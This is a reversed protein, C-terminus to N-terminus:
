SRCHIQLSAHTKDLVSTGLSLRVPCESSTIPPEAIAWRVVVSCRGAVDLMHLLEGPEPFVNGCITCRYLWKGLEPQVWDRVCQLDAVRPDAKREFRGTSSRRPARTVSRLETGIVSRVSFRRASNADFAIRSLIWDGCDVCSCLFMQTLPFITPAVADRTIRAALARRQEWRELSELRGNDRGRRRSGTHYTQNFGYDADEKIMITAPRHLELRWNSGCNSHIRACTRKARLLRLPM